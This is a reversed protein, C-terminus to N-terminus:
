RAFPSGNDTKIWGGGIMQSSRSILLAIGGPRFVPSEAQTSTLVAM